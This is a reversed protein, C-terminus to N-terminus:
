LLVSHAINECPLDETLFKAILAVLPGNIFLLTMLYRPTTKSCLSLQSCCVYYTRDFSHIVISSKKRFQSLIYLVLLLSLFHKNQYQTNKNAIHHLLKPYRQM